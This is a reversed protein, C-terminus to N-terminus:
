SKNIFNVACCAVFGATETRLTNAGLSVPLFENNISLDVESETFDGEPGILILVDEGQNVADGIYRHDPNVHAIAKNQSQSNVLFDEFDLLENIKPLFPNKSQKLASLAKKELRDMRIKKRESNKTQVLSVEDVGIETLKEILWEMRDINKTPAIALHISFSKKDVRETKLIEFECSKKSTNTIISHYKGGKGDLVLIEDGEKHRLVQICHRAEEEPLQNDGDQIDPQYFSNM